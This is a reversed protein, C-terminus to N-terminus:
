RGPVQHGSRAPGYPMDSVPAPTLTTTDFQPAQPPLKQGNLLSKAMDGQLQLTLNKRTQETYVEFLAAGFEPSPVYGDPYTGTAAMIVLEPERNIRALMSAVKKKDAQDEMDKLGESSHSSSQPRIFAEAPQSQIYEVLELVSTMANINEDPVRRALQWVYSQEWSTFADDGLYEKALALYRRSQFVGYLVDRENTLHSLNNDIQDIVTKERDLDTTNM